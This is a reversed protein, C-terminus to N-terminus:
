PGQELGWDTVIRPKHRDHHPATASDPPSQSTGREPPRIFEELKTLVMVMDAPRHDPNYSLCHMILDSVEQPVDARLARPSPFKQLKVMERKVKDANFYTPVKQSTLCWYLSAGLSYIDTQCNVAVCKVQEPTIFDPTGQVRRKGTDIKCTQGFDIVKVKGDDCVLVNHPKFDCHVLRLRHLSALAAAAHAFIGFLVTLDTPIHQDLPQGDVWELVLGAENIKNSFFKRPTKLEVAKRLGAHRFLRSMNFENQLQEIFREDADTKRVVHKLAFLQGSSDTVAYITSAAGDGIRSVVDFGFLSKPLGASSAKSDM